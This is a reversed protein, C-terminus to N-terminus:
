RAQVLCGKGIIRLEPPLDITAFLIDPVKYRSFFSAFRDYNLVLIYWTIIKM